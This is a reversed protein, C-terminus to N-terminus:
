ETPEQATDTRTLAHRAHELFGALLERETLSDMEDEGSLIRDCDSAIAELANRIYESKTLYTM